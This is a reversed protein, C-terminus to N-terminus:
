ASLAYSPQLPSLHLLKLINNFQKTSRTTFSISYPVVNTNIFLNPVRRSKLLQFYRRLQPLSSTSITTFTENM